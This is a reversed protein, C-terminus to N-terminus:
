CQDVSASTKDGEHIRLGVEGSYRPNYVLKSRDPLSGEIDSIRREVTVDVASMTVRSRLHVQDVVEKILDDQALRGRVFVTSVGGVRETTGTREALLHVQASGGM